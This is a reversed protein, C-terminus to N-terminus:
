ETLFNLCALLLAVAWDFWSIIGIHMKHRKQVIVIFACQNQNQSVILFILRYQLFKLLFFYLVTILFIRLSLFTCIISINSYKCSLSFFICVTAPIYVTISNKLQERAPLFSGCDTVAPARWNLLSIIDLM